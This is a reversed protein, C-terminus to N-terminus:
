KRKRQRASKGKSHYHKLARENRGYTRCGSAMCYKGQGTRNTVDRTVRSIYYRNCDPNSCRQMHAHLQICAKALRAGLNKNARLFGLPHFAWTGQDIGWSGDSRLMKRLLWVNITSYHNDLYKEDWIMRLKDRDDLIGADSEGDTLRPWKDRFRNIAALSDPLNALDMLLAPEEKKDLEDLYEFLEKVDERTMAVIDMRPGDPGWVGWQCLMEYHERARRRSSAKM